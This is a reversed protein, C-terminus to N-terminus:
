QNQIPKTIPILGYSPDDRRKEIISRVIELVHEDPAIALAQGYPYVSAMHVSGKYEISPSADLYLNHAAYHSTLADTAGTDDEEGGEVLDMLKDALHQDEPESGCPSGIVM